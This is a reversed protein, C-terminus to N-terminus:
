NVSRTARTDRAMVPQARLTVERANPPRVTATVAAKLRPMKLADHVWPGGNKHVGTYSAKDYYFREPGNTRRELTPDRLHTVAQDVARPPRLEDYMAAPTRGLDCCNQASPQVLDFACALSLCRQLEAPAADKGISLHKSLWRIICAHLHM